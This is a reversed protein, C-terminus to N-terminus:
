KNKSVVIKMNCFPRKFSPNGKSDTMYFQLLYEGSTLPARVNVTITVLNGPKTVGIEYVRVMFGNAYCSLFRGKWEETGTNQIVWVKKISQGAVVKTGDPYNGDRVFKAHDEAFSEGASFFIVTLVLFVLIAHKM